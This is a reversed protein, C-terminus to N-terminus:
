FCVSTGAPAGQIESLQQNVALFRQAASAASLCRWVSLFCSEELVNLGHWEAPIACFGEQGDRSPGALM